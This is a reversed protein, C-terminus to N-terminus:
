IYFEEKLDLHAQNGTFAFEEVLRKAKIKLTSKKFVSFAPSISHWFSSGLLYFIGANYNQCFPFNVYWQKEFHSYIYLNSSKKKIM